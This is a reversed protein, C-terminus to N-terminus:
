PPSPPCAPPTERASSPAPTEAGSSAAPFAEGAERHADVHDAPELALGLLLAREDIEGGALDVDDDARVAQQRLVDLEAIEAEQDHVFLLTEAHRVLFADLLHPLFTSTSVILAVGIGRVSFMDSTPMRSMDIM